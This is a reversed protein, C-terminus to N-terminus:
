FLRGMARRVAREGTRRHIQAAPGLYPQDEMSSTGKEVYYAYERARPDWVGVYAVGSGYNKRAEISRKLHGTRVPALRKATDELADAWEDIAQHRGANMRIPLARLRSVLGQLGSITTRSM